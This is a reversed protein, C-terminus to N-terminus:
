DIGNGLRDWAVPFGSRQWDWHWWLGFARGVLNEDPVFGWCRSDNSNDRNDGFVMYHGEPVVAGSGAMAYCGPIFDPARPNILIHHEVDDITEMGEFAGTMGSGAGSGQYVGVPIQQAPEGNIYLTKDMYEIHDGPVGVVRKIYDIKPNQPFRFVVVDGRQPAGIEIVKKDLVPLRIGYAYKNVLIFDGQLLTPMMSGSPIHFPEVLFSRLALVIFFVPFFSRAYEVVVPEKQQSGEVARKVRRPAFLVADILWIVGSVATVLVLIAPFDFDM